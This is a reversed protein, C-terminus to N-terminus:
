REDDKRRVPRIFLYGKYYDLHMPTRGLEAITAEIEKIASPRVKDNEEQEAINMLQEDTDNRHEDCFREASARNKALCVAVSPIGDCMGSLYDQVGPFRKIADSLISLYEQQDKEKIYGYIRLGGYKEKTQVIITMAGSTREEESQCGCFWRRAQFEADLWSLVDGLKKWGFPHDEGWRYDKGRGVVVGNVHYVSVEHLTNGHRGERQGLWFM